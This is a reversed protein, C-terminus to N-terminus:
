EHLVFPVSIVVIGPRYLLAAKLRFVWGNHLAEEWWTGPVFEALVVTVVGETREAKVREIYDLLLSVFARYPSPVVDLPAGTELAAWDKRVQETETPDVEIYVGRVDASLCRAYALARRVGRHMRPVPLIVTNPPCPGVPGAAGLHLQEDIRRYHRGIAAFLLVLVPLVVVVVWAGHVFKTLVFVCLVVATVSAGLANVAMSWRIRALPRRSGASAGGDAPERRGSARVAGRGLKWWHRVMGAQSLTFSLFVGIAYLPILRSVDGGFAWDLLGALAALVIIGNSYVLRDGLDAFQRPLFGDKAMLSALRPFDAYSTNAALILIAATAAQVLYYAWTMPGPFIARAFQSIATEEERPQVGYLYALASTGLFLVTLLGAMWLLTVAANRSEPKRFAPVGNSIAEVGTMATCGGSFAALLLLWNVGQAAYGEAFKPAGEGPVAAAGFLFYRALGWAIMGLFSALFLYVPVAFVAGAERLGRLNIITILAIAALCLAVPHHAIWALPTGQVASAVAAVGSAVSVAVTLTYDVLLAAGATLAPATGLNERAVIYAGGGSPYAYITQRYSLVVVWLLGTIALSIPILYQFSAGQTAGAAVALVLLIEETAYAVSSLADSSLVALDVAKGLREQVAQATRLPRGILWRRLLPFM